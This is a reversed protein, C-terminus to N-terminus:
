EKRAVTTVDQQVALM